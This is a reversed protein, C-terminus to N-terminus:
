LHLESEPIKITNGEITVKKSFLLDEIYFVSGEIKTNPGLRVIRGKVDGEVHIDQIDVENHALISGEVITRERKRFLLVEVASTGTGIRVDKGIINGEIKAKGNIDIGNESFIDGEVKSSGSINIGNTTQINKECRFSGSSSLVGGVVIEGEIKASGGFSASNDVHMNGECYFSGSCKIDGHAILNGYVKLSGASKIGRCEIDKLIKASGAIKIDRDIVGGEIKASGAVAISGNDISKMGSVVVSPIQERNIDGKKAIALKESYRQKLEVYSQKDIEGAEYREELLKLLEEYMKVEKYNM